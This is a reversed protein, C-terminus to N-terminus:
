KDILRLSAGEPAEDRRTERVTVAGV